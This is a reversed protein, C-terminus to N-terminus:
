VGNLNTFTDVFRPFSLRSLVIKNIKAFWIIHTESANLLKYEMFKYKNGRTTKAKYDKSCSLHTKSIFVTMYYYM